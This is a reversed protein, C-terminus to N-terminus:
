IGINMEFEMAKLINSEGISIIADEAEKKTKFWVGFAAASLTSGWTNVSASDTTIHICYNFM